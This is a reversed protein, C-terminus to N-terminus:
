SVNKHREDFLVKKTQKIKNSHKTSKNNLDPFNSQYLVTSKETLTSQNTVRTTTDETTEIAINKPLKTINLDLEKKIESNFSTVNPM